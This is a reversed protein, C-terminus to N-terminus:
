KAAEIKAVIKAARREIKILLDSALSYDNEKVADDHFAGGWRSLWYDEPEGESVWKRPHTYDASEKIRPVRPDQKGCACTTWQIAERRDNATFGGEKEAKVIRKGWFTRSLKAEVLKQHATKM